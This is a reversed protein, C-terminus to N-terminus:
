ILQDQKTLDAQRANAAVRAAEAKIRSSNERRGQRRFTM